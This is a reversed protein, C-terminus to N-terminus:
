EGPSGAGAIKEGQGTGNSGISPGSSPGGPPSSSPGADGGRTGRAGRAGRSSPAFLLVVCGAVVALDAFNLIGTHVPGLGLLIFDGVRGDRFVRDVLNGAGGGVVLSLGVLQGWPIGRRRVLSGAMFALVVLPFAVFVVMRAPRPLRAGLSLFAGENQVWVFQVLGGVLHVPPKGELRARAVAKTGQDWGAAALVILLAIVAKRARHDAAASGADPTRTAPLIM